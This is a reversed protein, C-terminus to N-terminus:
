FIAVPFFPISLLYFKTNILDLHSSLFLLCHLLNIRMQLRNTKLMKKNTVFFCFIYFYVLTHSTRTIKISYKIQSSHLTIIVTFDVNIM